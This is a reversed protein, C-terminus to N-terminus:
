IFIDHAWLITLGMHEKISKLGFCACLAVVGVMHGEFFKFEFCPEM